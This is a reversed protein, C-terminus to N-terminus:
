RGEASLAQLAATCCAVLRDPDTFHDRDDCIMEKVLELERRLDDLDIDPMLGTRVGIIMAAARELHRRATPHMKDAQEGVEELCNTAFVYPNTTITM